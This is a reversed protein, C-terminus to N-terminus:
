RQLKILAQNKITLNLKEVVEFADAIMLSPAFCTTYDGDVRCYAGNYIKVRWGMLEAMKADLEPGAQPEDIM